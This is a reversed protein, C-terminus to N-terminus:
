RSTHRMISYILPGSRPGVLKRAIATHLTQKRYMELLFSNSQLFINILETGTYRYPFQDFLM